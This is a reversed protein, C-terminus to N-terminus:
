SRVWAEPCNSRYDCYQCHPGPTANFTERTEMETGLRDLESKLHDLDEASRTTIQRVDAQLHWVILEAHRVWPWKARAMLEYMGLQKTTALRDKDWIRKGGKYDIITIDSTRDLRWQDIRDVKGKLVFKIGVDEKLLEEVGIILRYDFDSMRQAFLQVGKLSATRMNKPLAYSNVHRGHLQKARIVSLPGIHEQEVAEKVLDEVVAHQLSGFRMAYTGERPRKELYGYQYALPCREYTDVRSFDLTKNRPSPWDEPGKSLAIDLSDPKVGLVYRLRACAPNQSSSASTSEEQGQTCLTYLSFSPLVSHNLDAQAGGLHARDLTTLRIRHEVRCCSSPLADGLIM